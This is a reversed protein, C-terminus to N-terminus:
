TENTKYDVLLQQGIPEEFGRQGSTNGNSYVFFNVSLWLKNFFVMICNNAIRSINIYIM